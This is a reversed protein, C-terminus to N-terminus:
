KRSACCTRSRMAASDLCHSVRRAWIFCLSFAAPWFTAPLHVLDCHFRRGSWVEKEQHGILQRCKRQLKIAIWNAASWIDVAEGLARGTELIHIAVEGQTRRGPHGHEGAPQGAL